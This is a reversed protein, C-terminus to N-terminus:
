TLSVFLSMVGEMVAPDSARNQGDSSTVGMYSDSQIQRLYVIM